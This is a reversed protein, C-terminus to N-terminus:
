GVGMYMLTSVRRAATSPDPATLYVDTIRMTNGTGQAYPKLWVDSWNSVQAMGAPDVQVVKPLGYSTANVLISGSTLDTHAGAPDGQVLTWLINLSGLSENRAYFTLSFGSPTNAYTIPGFKVGPEQGGIVGTNAVTIASAIYSVDSDSTTGDDIMPWCVSGSMPTWYTTMWVNDQIPVVTAM